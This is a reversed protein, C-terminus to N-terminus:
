FDVRTLENGWQNCLAEFTYQDIKEFGNICDLMDKIRLMEPYQTAEIENVSYFKGMCKWETFRTPSSIAYVVDTNQLKRFQPFNPM